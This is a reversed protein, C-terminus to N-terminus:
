RGMGQVSKAPEDAVSGQVPRSDAMHVVEGVILLVPSVLGQREAEEAIDRLSSVVVRQHPTTASQIAAAPTTLSRGNIILQHVISRLNRLAMMVVLTDAASALSSWCVPNRADKVQHGSVIAVSSAIGRETLPIGAAAPAALASSVGPIVECPIGHERLFRVEEGGRGFLFSDGGKLRVVNMGRRAREVLLRNIKDQPFSYHGGHKGVQIREADAPAEDLLRPSVLRDYLVVEATRLARMGKVTLLEPDGPGAGVLSVKGLRGHLVKV